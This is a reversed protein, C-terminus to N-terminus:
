TATSAVLSRGLDRVRRPGSDEPQWDRRLVDAPAHGDLAARTRHFWRRIGIANYAGALDGVVLALFHLRAAVADPTRREGRAYRNASSPSIGVFRALDERDFIELLRRWETAPLPSEELLTDIERLDRVISATDSPQARALDGGARGGIGAARVLRVVKKVTSFTLDAFDPSEGILGVAHAKRVTDAALRAAAPDALPARDSENRAM